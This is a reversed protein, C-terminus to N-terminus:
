TKFNCCDLFVGNSAPCCDGILGLLSCSAVASCSSKQNTSLEKENISSSESTSTVASADFGARTAIWFLLQSKSLASDLRSSVVKEADRWAMNPSFIAHDAVVYGRWAMEVDGLPELSKKYEQEIYRRSFLEGTVSTVPMFNIMHVYLEENGFWTSCLADLMGINGVMFNSSFKSSYITAVDKPSNSAAPPMMHWYLKAGQIETALLLRAFDTEASEDLSPNEAAGNRVISWLYAGYYGNVAESSSEQSKGNGFPFMGSAYSHGDFWIKHRSGPFFPGISEKSRFNVNNAIDYFVSDVHNGFEKVFTPDIKGMIACAYLLYGYHFHHDNYRGNGFDAHSDMLGNITVMGGFNSDYVLRDSVKNSLLSELATRLTSQAKEFVSEAVAISEEDLSVDTSNVNMMYLHSIHALQALRASQKGFGYIDETATPLSLQVDEQLSKLIRPRVARSLFINQNNSGSDGDFGLSLLPIDMSWQSGTTPRMPGKICTYVLDFSEQGLLKQSSSSSTLSSLLLGEVHHPLALMLLEQQETASAFYETNFKFDITGIRNGTIGQSRRTSRKSDTVDPTGSITRLLSSWWSRRSSNASKSASRFKWSVTGSVPYVGAHYILRRVGTSNMVLDMESTESDMEDSRVHASDLPPIIALRIVGSYVKDNEASITIMTRNHMDIKLVAYESAFMIWRIGEQTEIIFQVGYLTSLLPPLEGNKMPSQNTANISSVDSSCVGFNAARRRRKRRFLGNSLTTGSMSADSAVDEKPCLVNTFVTFAKLYPLVNSFKMTVYPSGQVLYTEWYNSKISTYFRLSVSLPDFAVIKRASIPPQVGPLLGLSLDPFFYDHISKADEARHQAPYSVVLIQDAWKFAYPYVAIPYSLNQDATEPLVLNTWFSGTPYPFSFQSTDTFNISSQTKVFFSSHFLSPNMFNTMPDNYTSRDVQPWPIKFNAAREEAIVEAPSDVNATNTVGNRDASSSKSRFWPTSGDNAKSLQPSLFVLAVLSICLSIGAIMLIMHSVSHNRRFRRYRQAICQMSLCSRQPSDHEPLSELTNLRGNTGPHSVLLLQQFDGGSSQPTTPNFSSDYDENDTQVLCEGALSDNEATTAPSSPSPRFFPTLPTSETAQTPPTARDRPTSSSTGVDSTSGYFYFYQREVMRVSARKRDSRSKV